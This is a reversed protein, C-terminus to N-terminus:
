DALGGLRRGAVQRWHKARVRRRRGVRRIGHGWRLEDDQGIRRWRLWAWCHRYSSSPEENSLHKAPPRSRSLPYDPLFGVPSAPQCPPRAARYSKSFSPPCNEAFALTVFRSQLQPPPLLRPHSQATLPWLRRPPQPGVPNTSARGTSSPLTAPPPAPLRHRCCRPHPAQILNTSALRCHHLTGLYWACTRLVPRRNPAAPPPLPLPLM